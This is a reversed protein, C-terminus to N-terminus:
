LLAWKVFFLVTFSQTGFLGFHELKHYNSGSENTNTEGGRSVQVFGISKWWRYAVRGSNIHETLRNHRMWIGIMMVMM